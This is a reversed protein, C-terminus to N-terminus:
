INEAKLFFKGNNKGIKIKIEFDGVEKIPSDLFIESEELDSNESIKKATINEFFHGKENAKQKLTIEKKNLVSFRKKNNELNDTEKKEKKVLNKEANLIDSKQAIKALGNKLLFNNAYGVSVELIQGKVGIKKIDKQLVVKM